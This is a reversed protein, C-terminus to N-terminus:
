TPACAKDAVFITYGTILKTNSNSYEFSYHYNNYFIMSTIIIITTIITAIIFKLNSKKIIIYKM